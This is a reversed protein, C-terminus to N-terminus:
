LFYGSYFADFAWSHENIDSNDSYDIESKKLPTYGLNKCFEEFQLENLTGERGVKYWANLLCEDILEQNDGLYKHCLAMICCILFYKAYESELRKFHQQASELHCLARNIADRYYQSYKASNVARKAANLEDTGIDELAQVIPTPTGEFFRKLHYVSKAALIIYEIAM